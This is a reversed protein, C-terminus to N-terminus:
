FSFHTKKLSISYPGSSFFKNFGSTSILFSLFHGSGSGRYQEEM